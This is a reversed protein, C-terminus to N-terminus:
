SDHNDKVNDGGHIDNLLDQQVGALRATEEIAESIKSITIRKGKEEGTKIAALLLQIGALDCSNTNSLDINVTEKESLSQLLKKHTAAVEYISLTDGIQITAQNEKLDKRHEM